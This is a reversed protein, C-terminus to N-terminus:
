IKSLFIVRDGSNVCYKPILIRVIAKDPSLIEELVKGGFDLVQALPQNTEVQQGVKVKLKLIGGKSVAIRTKEGKITKQNSPPSKPKASIMGLYAMINRVGDVHVAVEAEGCRGLGGSEGVIGAIGKLASEHVLMGPRSVEDIIPAGYYHALEESKSDVEKNGTRSFISYSSLDEPLDGSHLDLIYNAKVALENFLTFAIRHSATGNPDGPFLGSINLGDIPCVYPVQSEFAATNLVPVTFVAGHLEAADTGAYIRVAAEIGTYECAHTGAVVLLTPGDYLGNVIGFHFGLTGAPKQMAELFGTNKEGSRVALNGVKIISKM